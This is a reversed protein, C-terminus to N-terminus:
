CITLVAKFKSINNSNVSYFQDDEIALASKAAYTSIQELPVIKRNEDGHITYLVDGDRDLIVSSQAAVLNQINDIDPLSPLVIALTLLVIFIILGVIGALVYRVIKGPPWDKKKLKDRQKKLEIWLKLLQKKM